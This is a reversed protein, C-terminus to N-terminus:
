QGGKNDSIGCFVIDVTVIDVTSIIKTIRPLPRKTAATKRAM